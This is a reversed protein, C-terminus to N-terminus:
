RNRHIGARRINLREATDSRKCGSPGRKRRLRFCGFKFVVRELYSLVEFEKGKKRKKSGEKLMYAKEGTSYCPIGGL